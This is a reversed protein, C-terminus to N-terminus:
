DFFNDVIARIVPPKKASASSVLMLMRLDQDALPGKNRVQEKLIKLLLPKPLPKLAAAVCDLYRKRAPFRDVAGYMARLEEWWNAPPEASLATDDPAAGDLPPPSVGLGSPFSLPLDLSDDLLSGITDPQAEGSFSPFSLNLDPEM